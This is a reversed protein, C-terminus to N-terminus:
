PMVVGVSSCPRHGDGSRAGQRAKFVSVRKVHDGFAVIDVLAKKVSRRRWHQGDHGRYRWGIM